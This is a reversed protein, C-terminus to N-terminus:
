RHHRCCRRNRHSEIIEVLQSRQEPDLVAHIEKIADGVSKLKGDIIEGKFASVISDANFEDKLFEAKFSEFIEKRAGRAEKALEFHRRLIATLQDKQEYTLSIKRGIHCVIMRAKNEPSFHKKVQGHIRERFHYALGAGLGILAAAKLLKKM